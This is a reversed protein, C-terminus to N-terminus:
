NKTKFNSKKKKDPNTFLRKFFGDRKTPACDLMEAVTASPNKFQAKTIANFTTDKNIKQLLKAAIPLAANAGQGTRTTKFGIRHDDNGVWTVTVLKPMVSVFWADKNSQTTGTKGGLDNQLGYTNRMRSATGTNVVSQLLEVMIQRTRESFAPQVTDNTHDFEELLEGKKNEVKLLYYPSVPKSDNVYAAYAGAMEYISLEATGLALSPVKPLTSTIGLKKALAITNGIGAEELVKVSVTNISKSLATKLSYNLYKEDINGSNSPSWGEMNEYEVERASFYDCPAVGQELATTYVIPKFTSGVQRKSKKVHDYKFHEFNVGGVWSKVAGSHPDIALMGANLFKLYHQVSDITSAVVEKNGKSGYWWMKKKVSLSDMIAKESLDKAKLKKYAQTKKVVSAILTKNSLWPANKGFEEEFTKQLKQLHEKMSEEAYQQLTKDLTTYIKLGSTYLNYPTDKTSNEKCWALMTNRVEERFYPALGRQEDYHGFDLKLSDQLNNKYEADTLFGYKHMQHLVTNRRKINQKPFRKPDYTYTAKLTGILTAAETPTLESTKKNFYKLAASEIGYTNGSFPVTNSYLELIETKSYNKELRRAVIMEKTKVVPLTFIGYDKRSFLNKALQQTITSGGGSSADQLLITKFLVRFLSKIDIGNHDYFRVDETAILADIVHQPIESYAIPQRNSLYFKGILENNTDYIESAEYQSLEQIDTSTPIHGWLGLRVSIIFVCLLGVFGATIKFVVSGIKKLRDKKM